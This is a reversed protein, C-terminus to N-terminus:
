LPNEKIIKAPSGFAIVNSPLSKTVLSGAGVITNEGVNVGDFINVGMGITSYAGIKSGGAINCGPNLTVFKGIETHHGVSVKRNITVMNGLMVYPAIITGPGIFVGSGIENQKSIIASPHFFTYYDKEQIDHSEYFFDYVIKKTPVRIVGLILNKCKGSWNNHMIQEFSFVNLKELMYSPTEGVPTNLIINIDLKTNYNEYLADLLLSIMNNSKGIICIKM